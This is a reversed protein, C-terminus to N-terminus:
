VAARINQQEERLSTSSTCWAESSHITPSSLHPINLNSLNSSDKPNQDYTFSVEDCHGLKHSDYSDQVSEEEYDEEVRTTTALGPMSSELNNLLSHKRGNIGDSNTKNVIINYEDHAAENRLPGHNQLVHNQHMNHQYINKYHCKLYQQSIITNSSNNSCMTPYNSVSKLEAMANTAENMTKEQRVSLPSTQRYMADLVRQLSRVKRYPWHRIGMSRCRKKFATPRIGFQNAADTIPMHFFTSMNSFTFDLTTVGEISDKCSKSFSIQAEQFSASITNSLSLEPFSAFTFDSRTSM